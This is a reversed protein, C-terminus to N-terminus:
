GHEVEGSGANETRERLPEQALKRVLDALNQAAHPRALASMAQRMKRLREPDQVFKQITPLLQDALQDNELLVAAGKNILYDANVKQYRWAHPYPVLVAPLGFLPYEVLTSAGARSVALDAAALAAGMQHLYPMPYYHRTTEAPLSAALEARASEIEPWDTQGTIHIVQIEPLLRPLIALLSRNISRAGKSGGTVLLTFRDPQLGLHAQATERTWQTIEPRTPYGTVTMPKGPAFFRRSDEATLGLQSALRAVLKLALGPEIDPVYVLSPVKRGGLIGSGALAMPVAVFGGTFLLVDPKFDNLIRRSALTGQIVRVLNPLTRLGMGAVQGAPIEKFSIGARQVLDAEMGGEGGVWLVPDADSSLAQRVVLAPYM